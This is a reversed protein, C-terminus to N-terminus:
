VLQLKQLLLSVHVTRFLNRQSILHCLCREGSPRTQSNVTISMLSFYLFPSAHLQVLKPKFRLMPSLMNDIGRLNGNRSEPCPDELIPLLVAYTGGDRPNRDSM